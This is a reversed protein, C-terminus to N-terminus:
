KNDTLLKKLKDWRPDNEERQAEKQQPRLEDLKDLLDSKLSGDHVGPHVRKQPVALVVSEYIYQKIDFQYEGHPLILVEDNEDNYVEGFKIVMHMSGNIAQDYPENTLDCDVNVHGTSAVDLEMMTSTKLLTALVKINAGNFEDYGFSEFFANDIEHEFQHRGQKLGRFPILFEKMGM